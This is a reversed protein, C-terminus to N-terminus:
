AKRIIFMQPYVDLYGKDLEGLKFRVFRVKDNSSYERLDDIPLVSSWSYEGLMKGLFFNDGRYDVFSDYETSERHRGLFLSYTYWPVKIGAFIIIKTDSM